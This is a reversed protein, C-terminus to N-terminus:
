PVLNELVQKIAKEVIKEPNKSFIGAKRNALIANISIAHHGLAKSLHYIGSTEMELNTLVKGGLNFSAMKEIFDGFSSLARTKRGQPAYFGPATLTIGPLMNKGITAKLQNSCENVFPKIDLDMLELYEGLKTQFNIEDTTQAVPYYHGLADLGVSIDTYLLSDIEITEQLTGSTGIRIINLSTHNEKITRSSLDINVLADVENLVIDINDTGIGTSIISIKTKGLFGTHTVFERNEKILIIKDLYKSVQKVREPDGVTIINHAIDEPLLRLHYISGDENLIIDTEKFNSM